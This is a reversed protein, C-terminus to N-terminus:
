WACSKRSLYANLGDLGVAKDGSLQFVAKRVEEDTFEQALFSIEPDDLGPGLSDFISAAAELDCGESSFLTSFYSTVLDAIGESTNVVVGEDNKLYKIKNSKRRSSAHKHFFKTNRDGAKLWRVRARQKWYIKDKYLLSDLRSQLQTLKSCDERTLMAKNQLYNIEQTLFQIRSKTSHYTNKAWARLVSVCHKQQALFSNFGSGTSLSNPGENWSTEVTRYFDPDELWVNEFRFRNCTPTSNPRSNSSTLVLKLVRHDSGYFGLHHLSHEPFVDVWSDSAVAWDLRERITKNTWTFKNGIFSLPALNFKYLFNHFCDM